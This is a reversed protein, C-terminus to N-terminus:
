ASRAAVPQPQLHGIGADADRRVLLLANEVLVILEAALARLAEPKTQRDDLAQALDEAVAHRHARADAAAADEGDLELARAGGRRRRRFAAKPRRAHRAPEADPQHVVVGLDAAAHTQQELAPAAAADAGGGDLFGLALQARLAEARVAQDDVVPKGVPGIAQ